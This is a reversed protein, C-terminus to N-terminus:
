NFVRERSTYDIGLLHWIWSTNKPLSITMNAHHALIPFILESIDSERLGELDAGLLM